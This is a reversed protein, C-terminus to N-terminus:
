GIWSIVRRKMDDVLGLPRTAAGTPFALKDLERRNACYKLIGLATCSPLLCFHDAPDVVNIPYGLRVPMDFVEGAKEVIGELLAGGGTLVLGTFLEPAVGLRHVTQQVSTLLRHCRAEIIQCLLRRPVARLRGTGIEEIEIVEEEPVEDPLAAGCNIKLWEAKELPTKLVTWIDSTILNGGVPLVESLRINGQYYLAIDTTGGGIDAVIVGMEKEDRTLAAEGSALQQMVVGCVVVGAKNVANVVNNVAGKANLVLHLNVGIRSGCMGMPDLLREQGDVWFGQTLEHIIEYNVPAEFSRAEALVRTVDEM